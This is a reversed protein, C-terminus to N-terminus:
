LIRSIKVVTLLILVILLAARGGSSSNDSDSYEAAIFSAPIATIPTIDREGSHYFLTILATFAMLAIIRSFSKSKIIKYRNIKKFIIYIAFFLYTTLAVSYLAEPVSGSFPFTLRATGLESIYEELVSIEGGSMYIISLTIVFPLILGSLAIAINRAGALSSRLSFILVLPVLFLLLPEFIASLSILFNSMFLESDNKDRSFSFALSGTVLLAAVSIGSTSFYGGFYSTFLLYLVPVTLGNRGASARLENFRYLVILTLIISAISILIHQYIELELPIALINLSYLNVLSGDKFLDVFLTTAFLAGLFLPSVAFHYKTGTSM